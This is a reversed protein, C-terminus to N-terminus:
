KGLPTFSGPLSKPKPNARTGTYTATPTGTPGYGTSVYEGGHARVINDLLDDNEKVNGEIIRDAAPNVLSAFPFLNEKYRKAEEEKVQGQGRGTSWAPLAREALSDLEARIKYSEVPHEAIYKPTLQARLVKVRSYINGLDQQALLREQVKTRDAETQFAVTKGNPLTVTNMSKAPAGGGTTYAARYASTDIKSQYQALQDQLDAIVKDANAKAVQSSTNAKMAQAKTMLYNLQRARYTDEALREDGLQDRLEALGNKAEGARYRSQEIDTKQADIDQDQIRNLQEIFQNQGGIRAQLIGGMVGGLLTLAGFAAGGREFIRGPNVGKESADKALKQAQNRADEFRRQRADEALAHQQNLIKLDDAQKKYLESEYGAQAGMADYVKQQAASQGRWADRQYERTEPRVSVRTDDWGAPHYTIPSAGGEERTPISSSIPKGEQLWGATDGRNYADRMADETERVYANLEAQKKADGNSTLQGASNFTQHSDGITGDPNWTQGQTAKAMALTEPNAPPLWKANEAAQQVARSPPRQVTDVAAKPPPGIQTGSDTVTVDPLVIKNAGIADAFLALNSPSVPM